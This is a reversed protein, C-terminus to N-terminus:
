SFGEFNQQSIQLTKDTFLLKKTKKEVFPCYIQFVSNNVYTSELFLNPILLIIDISLVM